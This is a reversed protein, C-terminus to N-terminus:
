FTGRDTPMDMMQTLILETPQAKEESENMRTKNTSDMCLRARYAGCDMIQRKQPETAKRRPGVFPAFLTEMTM